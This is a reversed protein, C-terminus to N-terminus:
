DSDGSATQRFIGLGRGVSRAASGRRLPAAPSCSSRGVGVGVWGGAELWHWCVASGGGETQPHGWDYWPPTQLGGAAGAM